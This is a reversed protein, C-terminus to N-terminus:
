TYSTLRRIVGAPAEHLNVVGAKVSGTDGMKIAEVVLVTLM